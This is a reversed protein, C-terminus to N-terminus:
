YFLDGIFIILPYAVVIGILIFLVRWLMRKYKKIQAKRKAFEGKYVVHFDKDTQGQQIFEQEADLRALEIERIRKVVKERHKFYKDMLVKKPPKIAYQIRCIIYSCIGNEHGCLPKPETNPEIKKNIYVRNM